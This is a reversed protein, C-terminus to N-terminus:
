SKTAGATMGAVLFRQSFLFVILVPAVSLLTALVLVPPQVEANAGVVPNFTPTSALMQTLGVQMPYADSGPLMVYPLFFNNWNNTFSFFAVLAVIPKALPLAVQWFTGIESCGDLRAAELLERPVATSFYIYTLYVGFPFFSFPLVVSLSTNVLGAYSLELFTPLVLATAPMLMVVLTVVLLLRRGRFRMLALAYGAPISVAMTIVLAFLAYKVSNGMWTLVAGDQFGMLDHWNDALAGFSGIAFPNDDVLQSPTKTSGLLLWLIPVVFFAVFVVLVISTISRGAAKRAVPRVDTSM